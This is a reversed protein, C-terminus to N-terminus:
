PQTPPPMDDPPADDPPADPADLQDWAVAALTGMPTELAVTQGNALNGSALLSWGPRRSGATILALTGTSVKVEVHTGQPAQVALLRRAGHKMVVCSVPVQMTTLQVHEGDAVHEVTLLNAM